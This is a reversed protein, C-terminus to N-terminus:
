QAAAVLRAVIDSHTETLRTEDIMRDTGGLTHSRYLVRKGTKEEKRCQSAAHWVLASTIALPTGEHEIADEVGDIYKHALAAPINLMAAAARYVTRLQSVSLTKLPALIENATTMTM